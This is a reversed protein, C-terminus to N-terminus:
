NVVGVATVCNEAIGHHPRSVFLFLLIRGVARDNTCPLVVEPKAPVLVPQYIQCWGVLILDRLRLLSMAVYSGLSSAWSRAAVQINKEAIKDDSYYKTRGM